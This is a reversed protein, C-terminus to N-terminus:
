VQEEGLLGKREWGFKSGVALQLSQGLGPSLSSVWWCSPCCGVADWFSPSLQIDAWSLGLSPLLLRQASSEEM